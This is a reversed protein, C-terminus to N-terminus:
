RAEQIRTKRYNDNLQAHHNATEEVSNYTIRHFLHQIVTLQRNAATFLHHSTTPYMAVFINYDSDIQGDVASYFKM